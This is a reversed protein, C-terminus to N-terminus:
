IRSSKYYQDAERVYKQIFPPFTEIWEEDNKDKAIDFIIIQDDQLEVPDPYKEIYSYVPFKYGNKEVINKRVKLHIGVLDNTDFDLEDTLINFKQTLTDDMVDGYSFIDHYIAENDGGLDSTLELVLRSYGNITGCSYVGTIVVDIDNKLNIRL